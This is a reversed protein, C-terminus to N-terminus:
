PGEALVHAGGGPADMGVIHHYFKSLVTVGVAMVFFGIIAMLANTVVLVGITPESAGGTASAFESIGGFTALILAAIILPISVFFFAGIFRWSNGRMNRWAEGLTLPRDVATGPLVLYFRFMVFLLIFMAIGSLGFLLILALEVAGAGQTEVVSVFVGFSVFGIVFMPVIPAFTLLVTYGLFRWNRTGLVDTFVSEREGLLFFRHWRVAFVLYMAWSAASLAIYTVWDALSRSEGGGVEILFGSAMNVAFTIVLLLWGLAFFRDLNGFVFGYSGIATRWVPVKGRGAPPPVETTM